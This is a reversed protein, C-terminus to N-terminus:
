LLSHFWLSRIWWINVSHWQTRLVEFFAPFAMRLEQYGSIWLFQSLTISAAGEWTQIQVAMEWSIPEDGGHHLCSEEQAGAKGTSVTVLWLIALGPGASHMPLQAAPALISLGFCHHSFSTAKALCTWARQWRFWAGEVVSPRLTQARRLISHATAQALCDNPFICTKNDALSTAARNKFLQIWTYNINLFKCTNLTYLKILKSLYM